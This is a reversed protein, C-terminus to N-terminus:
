KWELSTSFREAGTNYVVRVPYKRANYTYTYTGTQQKGTAITTLTESTINNASMNTPAIDTIFAMGPIQLHANPKSDYTYDVASVLKFDAQTSTRGLNEMRTVNGKQDWTYQQCNQSAFQGNTAQKAFYYKAIVQGNTNYVLSDYSNVQEGLLYQVQSIRNSGSEYQLRSFPRESGNEETESIRTGTLRGNEYVPIRATTYDGFESKNTILLQQVTNDMNYHIRTNGGASSIKQLLVPKDGTRFASFLVGAAVAAVPIARRIKKLNSM